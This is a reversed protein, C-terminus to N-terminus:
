DNTEYVYEIPKLANDDYGIKHNDDVTVGQLGAVFIFGMVAFLGM